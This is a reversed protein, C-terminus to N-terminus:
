PSGIPSAPRPMECAKSQPRPQEVPWLAALRMFRSLLVHLLFRRIFEGTDLTM